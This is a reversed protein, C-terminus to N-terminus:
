KLFVRKDTLGTIKEETKVTWNFHFLIVSKRSFQDTIKRKQLYLFHGHYKKNFACHCFHISTYTLTTWDLPNKLASFFKM